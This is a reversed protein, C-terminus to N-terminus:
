NAKKAKKDVLKPKQVFGTGSEDLLAADALRRREAERTYTEVEKLSQHGTVAAIQNTTRGHEALWKSTGKRFSHASCEPLGAEDCWARMKNGFGAASYPKGYETLLFTMGECKEIERWLEPVIPIDVRYGTKGQDFVLRGNQIHQKGLLVVDGRRVTTYRLLAYAMRAKTGSPHTDEYKGFDSETATYFGRTKSPYATMGLAPNHPIMGIDVALNLMRRIIKLLNNAAQKRDSMKGIIAKIHKREIQRVSRTGYEELFRDIIGNYTLQTSPRNKTFEPSQRYIAALAAFSGPRTRSSGVPEPQDNFAAVYARDFEPTGPKEHIYTDVRGKRFRIYGDNWTCFRPLKRKLSM